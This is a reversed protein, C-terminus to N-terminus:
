LSAGALLFPSYPVIWRNDIVYDGNKGSKIISRGGKGPELRQYEPHTKEPNIVTKECFKKPYNKSCKGDVMCPSSPNLKGCPGHIMNQLVISELRQAQARQDSGPPFLEPDPPLQASIVNDVDAASNIRDDEALIVLVHAHPLGRKQFEIVWLFAPVKGLVQGSNIIKMLQDKKQKFVRSVLDPRDQVTEWERLEDTIETWQPNCTLTIFFDPKHYKRCIAMGDQFKSHYWRPSGTFSKSLVIQKGIKLEHDDKSIKDGIPERDSLAERVNKYSDARLAKQNNKNFKLKQNEITTFALCIYEQFLRGYRFLFDADINRMNLHFAFFERPSVRKIKSSDEHRLFESYGPTGHPFLLVFHLPQASPHLDYIYQLGGGRKRLVLDGPVSNTLISVENFSQQINYRREHTNKPRDEKKCSIILKGDTLDSDPIECIHLLDKVFPNVEKM